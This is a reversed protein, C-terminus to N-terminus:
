SLLLDDFDPNHQKILDEKWARRWNKLQKERSIADQVETYEEVHVLKHANYKWTFQSAEGARHEDVRRRLDNTMGVYLVTNHQNALIYVYYTQAAM